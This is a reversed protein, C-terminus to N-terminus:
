TWRDSRAPLAEYLDSPPASPLVRTMLSQFQEETIRGHRLLVAVVTQIAHWHGRVLDEVSLPLHDAAAAAPAEDDPGFYELILHAVAGLDTGGDISAPDHIAMMLTTAAFSAAENQIAGMASSVIREAIPGALLYVIRRVMAHPDARTAEDDLGTLRVRGGVPPGSWIEAGEVHAGLLTGVVAHAAEHHARAWLQARLDFQEIDAQQAPDPVSTEEGPITGAPLPVPCRQEVGVRSASGPVAADL